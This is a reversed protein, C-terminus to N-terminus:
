EKLQARLGVNERKLRSNEKRLRAAEDQSSKLQKRLEEAGEGGKVAKLVRGLEDNFRAYLAENEANAERYLDDLKKSKNESVVLSSGLDDQIAKSKATLEDVVKSLQSEMKLVRAALDMNSSLGGRVPSPKTRVSGIKSPTATLEDGIKSLEDQLSNQSASTASQENQLRERLKQPSQMRLRKPQSATTPEVAASKVAKEQLLSPKKM